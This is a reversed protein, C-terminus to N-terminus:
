DDSDSFGEDGEQLHEGILRSGPPLSRTILRIHVRKFGHSLFETPSVVPLSLPEPPNTDFHDAPDSEIQALVRCRIPEGRAAISELKDWGQYAPVGYAILHQRGGYISVDIALVRHKNRDIGLFESVDHMDVDDGSVTGKWDGYQVSAPELLDEEWM